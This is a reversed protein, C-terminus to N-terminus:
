LALGPTVRNLRQEILQIYAPNLEIGIFKRGYELAVEGTTGSGAFPDLVVGGPPAGALICPKILDPPFTAFHAEKYPSTAVTWVSRKNRDHVPMCCASSFSENQKSGAAGQAAKPNVGGRVVAKMRGNTKGGAHARDSGIQAAVNQSVRAHTSESCREKIADFDYYYKKKKTLLFIYEHSKTPRDYVAEPMPNPKHWVIDCRLYWGDAQLALALRWPMGCLDKEKLGDALRNPRVDRKGNELSGNGVVNRRNCVWASAYTDGMNMWLTGDDRLVRHVERFLCVMKELYEGPTTELGIQGKVGYDRLGWYPPSTVVTQVSQEALTPLMELAGGCLIKSLEKM